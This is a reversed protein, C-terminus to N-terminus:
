KTKKKTQKKKREIREKVKKQGDRQKVKRTKRNDGKGM